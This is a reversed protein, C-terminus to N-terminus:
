RTPMKKTTPIKKQHCNLLHGITHSSNKFTTVAFNQKQITLFFILNKTSLNTRFCLRSSGRGNRVQISRSQSSKKQKRRGLTPPFFSFLARRLERWMKVEVSSAEIFISLFLHSSPFDSERCTLLILVLSPHILILCSYGPTFYFKAFSEEHFFALSTTKM